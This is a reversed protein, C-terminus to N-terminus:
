LERVCRELEKAIENADQEATFRLPKGITVQVHGPRAFIQNKQRLDYLGALRMPVIALNLQKALLGVGARFPAIRGDETTQGEPFVLINWGRDALDGAFSFSKLFGSRQPLPFVNFLCLALFYDLRERMRNFPNMNKAPRRMEALREARMATALRNRLRAPLAALIWAIDLYTIHNAVLLVPGRLGGLNERGRIRPAALIYTAPWALLYYVGLRVATALRNQPWRPYLHEGPSAPSETLLKELQGVTAVDSFRADSLDTQYRSELASMLEVRDLSTMHLDADLTANRSDFSVPRGTIQAILAALSSGNDQPTSAAALKAHVVERIRPLLPKLTPTRPFDPDPWLFWRRIKQYDALSRNANDILSAQDAHQPDQLLLVACPEANGEREIGIVACDRVGPERRVAKELDEPYVNMGAPTVIVNKRRGKFYLRGEADTEGVDGTHFWGDAEAVPQAHDRQRYARAVNEGRVLIEGQEDVRVEMGPFVKGISGKASRFPHNLSILSTTETMGYGQIVAYGLRNWFTEVSESLAAGGSIFAWFKWGLLSHIRRFRWWRRLFHEKEARQYSEQFRQTRGDRELQRLIERQLSEIFRPVAVLVSIREDRIVDILDSPKLSDICVVTGALFPPIFIGLMQGFVHSLPLLNLFRLPHFLREYRLYKQIERGVPEINALVNGHCIVVGRPEATTGSTFIIELTDQRSLPPAPYPSSDRQATLQALSELVVLDASLGAHPLARSRFILKANVERAVRAAFEATSSHDIPVAVAGRLLCGFFAMIWQPSNEGWLLVADGKGIGRSELERAVGNAQQAIQAYTWSEMRYGRRFRMAIENGRAAYQAVFDVLSQV